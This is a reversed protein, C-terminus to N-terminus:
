ERADRRARLVLAGVALAVLVVILAGLLPLVDVVVVDSHDVWDCRLSVPSDYGPGRVVRLETGGDPLPARTLCYDELYRAQGFWWCVLGVAGTAVTAAVAASWRRM